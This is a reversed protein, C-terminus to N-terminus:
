HEGPKAMVVWPQLACIQGGSSSIAGHRLRTMAIADTNTHTTHNMKLQLGTTGSTSHNAARM